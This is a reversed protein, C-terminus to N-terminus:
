IKLCGDRRWFLVVCYTWVGMGNNLDIIELAVRMGGPGAVHWPDPPLTPSHKPLPLPDIRQPKISSGRDETIMPNSNPQWLPTLKVFLM